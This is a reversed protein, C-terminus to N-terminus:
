IYHFLYIFIVDIEVSIINTLDLMSLKSFNSHTIQNNVIIQIISAYLCDSYNKSVEINGIFTQNLCERSLKNWHNWVDISMNNGIWFKNYISLSMYFLIQNIFIMSHNMMNILM